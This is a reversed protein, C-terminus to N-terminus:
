FLDSESNEEELDEEYKKKLNLIKVIAHNVCKEIFENRNNETIKKYSKKVKKISKRITVPINRIYTKYANSVRPESIKLDPEEEEPEEPDPDKPNEEEPEEPDSEEPDEPDVPLEPEEIGEDEVSIRLGLKPLKKGNVLTKEKLIKDFELKLSSLSQSLFKLHSKKDILSTLVMGLILILVEGCMTSLLTHKKFLNLDTKSYNSLSKDYKKLNKVSKDVLLNDVKHYDVTGIKGTEPFSGIAIDVDEKLVNVLELIKKTSNKTKGAGFYIMNVYAYITKTFEDLYFELNESRLDAFKTQFIQLMEPENESSEVDQNCKSEKLIKTLLNKTESM